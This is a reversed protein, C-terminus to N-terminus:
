FKKITNVYPSLVPKEGQPFVIRTSPYKKQRREWEVWRLYDERQEASWKLKKQLYNAVDFTIARKAMRARLFSRLVPCFTPNEDGTLWLNLNEPCRFDEKDGGITSADTTKLDFLRIWLYREV